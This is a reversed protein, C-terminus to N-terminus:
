GLAEKRTNPLFALTHGLPSSLREQSYRTRGHPRLGYSLRNSVFTVQWSFSTFQQLGKIIKCFGRKDLYLLVASFQVLLSCDHYRLSVRCSCYVQALSLNPASRDTQLSCGTATTVKASAGGIGGEFEWGLIETHSMALVRRREQTCFHNQQDM